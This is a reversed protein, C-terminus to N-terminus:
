HRATAASLTQAGADFSVSPSSTGNWTAQLTQATALNYPSITLTEQSVTIGSMSEPRATWVKGTLGTGDTLEGWALTRLQDIRQDLGSCVLADEESASVLKTSQLVMAFTGLFGISIVGVAVGGHLRQVKEEAFHSRATGAFAM